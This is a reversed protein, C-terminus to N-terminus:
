TEQTPSCFFKIFIRKENVETPGIKNLQVISEKYGSELCTYLDPYSKEMFYEPDGIYQDLNVYGLQAIIDEDIM